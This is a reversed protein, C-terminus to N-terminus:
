QKQIFDSPRCGFRKEFCRSFYGPSKFGVRAAVEGVTAARDRLLEAARSLRVSHIFQGGDLNLLAQLKGNLQSHSMGAERAFTEADFQTDALHKEVVALVTALFAEDSSTM